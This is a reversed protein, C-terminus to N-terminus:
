NALMKGICHLYATAASAHRCIVYLMHEENEDLHNTRRTPKSNVNFQANGSTFSVYKDKDKTSFVSAFM